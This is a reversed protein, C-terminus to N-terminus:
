TSGYNNINSSEGGALLIGIVIGMMNFEVLIGIIIGFLLILLSNEFMTRDRQLFKFEIRVVWKCNTPNKHDECNCVLSENHIVFKNIYNSDWIIKSQCIIDNGDMSNQCNHILAHKMGGFGEDDIDCPARSHSPWEGVSVCELRKNENEPTFIDSFTSQERWNCSKQGFVGSLTTLLLYVYILRM